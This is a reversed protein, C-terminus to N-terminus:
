GRELRYMRLRGYDKAAMLHGVYDLDFGADALSLAAAFRESVYVVGPPTVPEIRATRSVQSGMFAPLNLVPDYVPLVPGLHAGLRLSLDTPLGLAPLDLDALARQLDLACRAAEVVDDIVVYLADGWTNRHQVHAAYRDLVKAFSGLVHRVFAPLQDDRLRSFGKVDAFLLARVVRGGAPADSPVEPNSAETGGAVPIVRTPLGRVQWRAVDAATGGVLTRSPQEDWVALQVANSGLREAHMVALGMALESAYQFLVDDGLYADDTAHRISTAGAVCREFRPRWRSGADDVSIQVFEEADFPLVVHLNAGARLAAEAIILDAGNALSGYVARPRLEALAQEVQDAIHPEQDATIRRVQDTNSARHGCYHLITPGSITKLIEHGSGLENCLIRLQRRTSAVAAVDAGPRGIATRLADEADDIRGLLLLAEARTAEAWYSHEDSPLVTLVQQALAHASDADGALLSLTAANIGPFYGGTANFVRRYAAAAAQALARRQPGHEALARDKELRAALSAAEEDRRAALGYEHFRRRAEGSSGARALLLVARHQLWPDDPHEGLAQDALDLAELLEGKREAASVEAVWEALETQM